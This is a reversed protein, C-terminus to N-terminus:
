FGAMSKDLVGGVTGYFSCRVSHGARRRLCFGVFFSLAFVGIVVVTVVPGYVLTVFCAIGLWVLIPLLSGRVVTRLRVATAGQPLVRENWVEIHDRTVCPNERM